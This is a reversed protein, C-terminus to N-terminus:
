FIKPLKISFHPIYNHLILAAYIHSLDSGNSSTIFVFGILQHADEKIHLFDAAVTNGSFCCRDDAAYCANGFGLDVSKNREIGHKRVLGAAFIDNTHAFACGAMHYTSGFYCFGDFKGCIVLLGSETSFSEIKLEEGDVSINGLSSVAIVSVDTFSEVEIIGTLEMRARGHLIINQEVTSENNM